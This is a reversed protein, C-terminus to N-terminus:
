AFLNRESQGFTGRKTGGPPLGVLFTNPRHSLLNAALAAASISGGDTL